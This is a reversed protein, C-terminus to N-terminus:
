AVRAFEKIEKLVLEKLEQERAIWKGNEYSFRYAGSIPSSLWIQKSADHKNIVFVGRGEFEIQLVGDSYDMEYIGNNYGDELSSMISKLEPIAVNLYDAVSDFNEKM